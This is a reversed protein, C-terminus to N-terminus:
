APAFSGEGTPASAPASGSSGGQLRRLADQAKPYDPQLTIAQGLATIAQEKYGGQEMAVALNYRAQANAPQVQVARTITNIADMQRGVQGYAAGLFLLADFDAPNQQIAAELLPAAAAPNGQQLARVGDERESAM